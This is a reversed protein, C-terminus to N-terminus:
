RGLRLWKCVGVDYTRKNKWSFKHTKGVDKEFEKCFESKSGVAIKTQTYICKYNSECDIVSASSNHCIGYPTSDGVWKAGAKKFSIEFQHQSVQCTSNDKNVQAELLNKVAQTDNNDPSNCIELFAIVVPDKRDIDPRADGAKPCQRLLDKKAETLSKKGPKGIMGLIHEAEIPKPISFEMQRFHCKIETEAKNTFSCDGSITSNEHESGLDFFSPAVGAASALTVQMLLPALAIANVSYRMLSLAGNKKNRQQRM